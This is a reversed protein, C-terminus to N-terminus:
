QLLPRSHIFLEKETDQHYKPFPHKSLALTYTDTELAAHSVSSSCFKM